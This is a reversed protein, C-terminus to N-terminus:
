LEKKRKKAKAIQRDLDAGIQENNQFDQESVTIGQEKLKLITKLIEARKTDGELLAKQIQFEDNLRSTQQEILAIIYKLGFGRKVKNLFNM